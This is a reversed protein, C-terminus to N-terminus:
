IETYILAAISRWMHVEVRSSTTSITAFALIRQTLGASDDSLLFTSLLIPASRELELRRYGTLMAANGCGLWVNIRRIRTSSQGLREERQHFSLLSQLLGVIPM